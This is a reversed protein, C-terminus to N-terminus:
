RRSLRAGSTSSLYQGEGVEEFSILAFGRDDTLELGLPVPRWGALGRVEPCASRLANMPAALSGAALTQEESLLQLLCSAGEATQLRWEGALATVEPLAPTPAMKADGGFNRQEGEACGAVAIGLIILLLRLLAQGMHCVPAQRGAASLM